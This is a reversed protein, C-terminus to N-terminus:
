QRSLRRTQTAQFSWASSPGFLPSGALGGVRCEIARNPVTGLLTAECTMAACDLGALALWGQMTFEATAKPDALGEALEAAEACGRRAAETSVAWHFFYVGVHITAGLAFLFLPLTIAFEVANAGRRRM